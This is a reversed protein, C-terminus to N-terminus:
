SADALKLKLTVMKIIWRLWDKSIGQPGAIVQPLRSAEVDISDIAIVDHWCYLNSKNVTIQPHFVEEM